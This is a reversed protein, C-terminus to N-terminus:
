EEHMISVVPRDANLLISQLTSGFIAKGVPTRRRGGAVIYRADIRDSEDLIAETVNGVRGVFEIGSIDDLTEVAVARAVERADRQADEIYYGSGTSGSSYRLYPVGGTSQLGGDRQEVAEHIEDFERQPMVHIVVLDDDYVSALDHAIEVVREPKREGDVAAMVTM